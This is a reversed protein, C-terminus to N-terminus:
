DRSHLFKTFKQLHIWAVRAVFNEPVSRVQYTVPTIVILSNTINAVKRVTLHTECVPGAQASMVLSVICFLWKLTTSTFLAEGSIASQFFM